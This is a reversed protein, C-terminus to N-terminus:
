FDSYITKKEKLKKNILNYDESLNESITERITRDLLELNTEIRIKVVNGNIIRFLEDKTVPYAPYTLYETSHYVTRIEYDGVGIEKINVLTLISGDELKLLLKRGEDIQQKGENLMLSIMYLTDVASTSCILSIAGGSLLKSYITTYKTQMLRDGNSEVKDVLLKQANMNLCVTMIAIVM